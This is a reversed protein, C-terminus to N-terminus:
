GAPEIRQRLRIFKARLEGGGLEPHLISTADILHGAEIPKRSRYYALAQNYRADLWPLSGPTLLKTRLRHVDVALEHADLRGYTDAVDRLLAADGSMPSATWGNLVQRANLTEGSYLRSRVDRMRIEARQSTSLGAAPGSLPRLLISMLLGMRRSKLDSDAESACRDLRRVTDLVRAPDSIDPAKRRASQEAELTRGLQALVIIQLREAQDRQEPSAASKVVSDVAERAAEPRGIVPTLELRARALELENQEREGRAQKLCDELASRAAQAADAVLKPDNNLRQVDLDTSRLEATEVRADLWRPHGHPIEAWLKAAADRDGEAKRLKGLLWRAEQASPDGPFNAIQYRLATSYASKSGGAAAIRGRAMCRLLGARARLEGAEPNEALGTLLVDSEAYKGAQFYAAGAKLRYGQALKPKKQSDAADAGKADLAGARAPEKRGLAGDALLDWAQPEQGAGPQRVAGAVDSLAEAARPDKTDRLAKLDRFLAEEAKGRAPGEVLYRYEELGVRVKQVLRGAPDIKAADVAQRAGAFQGKGLLVRLRADLLDGQPLASKLAEAVEAAAADHRGLRSLLNARLLHAYGQLSAETISKEVQALAEEALAKRTAPDDPGIDALDTLTQALRFRANQAYVDGSSGFAAVVPRLREAAAKLDDAAKDRAQDTALRARAPDAWSRGRAWLYVAAQVQLSNSMPTDPHARVFRDIMEVAETWRKRRLEVDQASQAARDLTTAMNLLYRERVNLDLVPDDVQAQLSKLHARLDDERMAAPAQARADAAAVAFALAVGVFLARPISRARM